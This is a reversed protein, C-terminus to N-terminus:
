EDLFDEISMQVPEGNMFTDSAKKVNDVACKFYSEKLESGIGLRGMKVAQYIESGIGMFPSFVVDGEKSWLTLCREITDLQLPCIHREDNGDRAMEYNLTYTQRIDFWVPSAYRRWANHSPNGEPLDEGGAYTILGNKHEILDPNDGDKRMTIIYDPLGQRSMSSDKCLQKHMLGLAKTRTAEILPDKWILVESHFIFGEAQFARIIDGRFDKIGIYGDREKMAPIQMCHISVLRGKKIIRYLEKILFGFHMFFEADNKSNGMDRDSNSYTFLNSFPPSFISYGISETPINKAVEICDAHYIAFREGIVQNIVNM